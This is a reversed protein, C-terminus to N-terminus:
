ISDRKKNQIKSKKKFPKPGGTQYYADITKQYGAIQFLDDDKHKAPIKLDENFYFRLMNIEDVSAMRPDHYLPLRKSIYDLFQDESEILDSFVFLDYINITQHCLYLVTYFYM